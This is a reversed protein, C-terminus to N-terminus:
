RRVARRYPQRVRVPVPAPAPRAPAAISGLIRDFIEALRDVLSSRFPRPVPM